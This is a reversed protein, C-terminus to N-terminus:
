INTLYCPPSIVQKYVDAVQKKNPRTFRDSKSRPRSKPSLRPNHAASDKNENEDTAVADDKILPSMPKPSITTSTSRKKDM